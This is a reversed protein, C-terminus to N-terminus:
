HFLVNHTNECDHSRPLLFNGRNQRKSHIYDITYQMSPKTQLLHRNWSKIAIDPQVMGDPQAVDHESILLVSFVPFHQFKVM